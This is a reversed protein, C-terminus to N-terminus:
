PALKALFGDRPGLAVGTDMGFVIDGDFEGTLYVGGFPDTAVELGYQEQGQNGFLFGWITAGDPGLKVALVDRSVSSIPGADLGVQGHSNGTIILNGFPDLAVGRAKQEGMGGLRKSWGPDGSPLVKAVFIDTGDSTLETMGFLMKGQFDGSMFANGLRDVAVGYAQQASGDGFVRAYIPKGKADLAAIFADQGSPTLESDGVDFVGSAYGAIVVRGDGDEDTVAAVSTAAQAAGDGFRESWQYDGAPGFKAVFVDLDGASTLTPASTDFAVSGNFYGAIVPGGDAGLAVSVAFQDGDGGFRKAFVVNGKSDLKLLFIDDGGLSKFPGTGFDITGRFQGTVFTSGEKTAAIALGADYDTSGFARTWLRGGNPSFRAVFIDASGKSISVEGGINTSGQFLGTVFSNGTKDVAVGVGTEFDTSGFRIGWTPEGTCKDPLGDCDEDAESVCDENSPTIQGSCPGYGSGDGLCAKLGGKCLGVGLTSMPGEYCPAATGESCVIMSGGTGAAGGADAGGAAGAGGAGAPNSAAAGFQSGEVDLSCAGAGFIV